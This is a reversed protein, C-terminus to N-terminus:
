RVPQQRSRYHEEKATYMRKEAQKILDDMDIGGASQHAVGVAVSYGKRELSRALQEAKERM